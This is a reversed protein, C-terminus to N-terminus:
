NTKAKASDLVKFFTERNAKVTKKPGTLKFFYKGTPAEVVAGLLAFDKSEPMPMGAHPGGMMTNSYTGSAIEVLYQKLDNNSRESREVAGGPVDKFQGVWRKINAEVDGGQGQGFYFVALEAPVADPAAAPIVYTAKRMPKAPGLKWTDPVTWEIGM